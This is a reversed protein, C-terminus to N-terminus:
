ELSVGGVKRAQWFASYNALLLCETFRRGAADLARRLDPVVEAEIGQYALRLALDRSREGSAIVHAGALPSFDVDYLWSTDRGDEARANVAVIACRCGAVSSLLAAWGAPNKALFLRVKMEGGWSFESYRGEVASIAGLESGAGAVDVGLCRATALAMAANGLNMAGPISLSLLVELGDRFVVKEGELWCYPDPRSFGCSSCAFSGADWRVPAGCWPCVRADMLWSTGAGVFVAAGDSAAYVVLPDDANAVVVAGTDYAQQCAERLREALLRVEAFRDLQDRSLNLLVLASPKVDRLVRVVWAEDVEFVLCRASREAIVTSTLGARMNAGGRNTAVPRRRPDRELLAALMRRTTTKGNTGTVVVVEKGECLTRLLGPEICEAVRGGIVLGEGLGLARSFRSSVRGAWVAARARVGLGAESL